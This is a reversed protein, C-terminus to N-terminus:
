LWEVKVGHSCFADELANERETDFDDQCLMMKSLGPALHEVAWEDMQSAGLLGLEKLGVLERLVWFGHSPVSHVGGLVLRNLAPCGLAVREIDQAVVGVITWLELVNLNAMSETIRWLSARTMMGQVCSHGALCLQRIDLAVTGISSLRFVGHDTICPNYLSSNRTHMLICKNLLGPGITAALLHLGEDTVLSMDFRLCSFRRSHHSAIRAGFAVMSDDSWVVEDAMFELNHTQSSPSSPAFDELFAYTMLSMSGVVRAKKLRPARLSGLLTDADHTVGARDPTPAFQTPRLHLTELRPMAVRVAHTQGLFSVDELRMERLATMGALIGFFVTPLVTTSIYVSRLEAAALALARMLTPSVLDQHTGCFNVQLQSVGTAMGTPFEAVATLCLHKLNALPELPSPVLVPAASALHMKLATLMTLADLRAHSPLVSGKLVLKDLNTLRPVVHAEGVLARDSKLTLSRLTPALEIWSQPVVVRPSRFVCARASVCLNRLRAVQAVAHLCEAGEDAMEDGEDSDSGCLFWDDGVVFGLTELRRLQCLIRGPVPWHSCLAVLNDACVRTNLTRPLSICEGGEFGEPFVDSAPGTLAHRVTEGALLIRFHEKAEFDLRHLGTCLKLVSSLVCQVWPDDVPIHGILDLQHIRSLMAPSLKALDELSTVSEYLSSADKVGWCLRRVNPHSASLDRTVPGPNNFLDLQTARTNAVM